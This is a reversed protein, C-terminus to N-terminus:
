PTPFEKRARVVERSIKTRTPLAEMWGLYTCILVLLDRKNENMPNLQTFDIEVDEFLLTGQRQVGVLQQPWAVPNNCACAEYHAAVLTCLTWPRPVFFYHSFFNSLADKGPSLPWTLRTSCLTWLKLSFFTVEQCFRGGVRRLPGRWIQENLDRKKFLPTTQSLPGSFCSGFLAALLAVQKAAINAAQNGQAEMSEDRQHEPCYM